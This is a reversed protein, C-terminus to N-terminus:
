GPVLERKLDSAVKMGEKVKEQFYRKTKEPDLDLLTGGSEFHMVFVKALGYTSAGAVVPLALAGSLPGIVPVYRLLSAAVGTGLFGTGFSGVLAAIINKVRHESFKVGYHESLEDIMKLQIATIAALDVFPIPVLVPLLGVGMSWRVKSKIIAAVTEAHPVPTVEASTPPASAIEEVPHNKTATM